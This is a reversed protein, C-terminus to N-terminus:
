AVITSCYETGGCDVGWLTPWKTRPPPGKTEDWRKRVRNYLERKLQPSIPKLHMFNCFGGRTCERCIAHFIFKTYSSPPCKNGNWVQIEFDGHLISVKDKKVQTVDFPQLNYFKIERELNRVRFSVGNRITSLLSRPFRHRTVIRRLDTSGRVM